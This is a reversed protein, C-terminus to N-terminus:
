QNTRMLQYHSIVRRSEADREKAERIAKYQLINVTISSGAIAMLVWGVILSYVNVKMPQGVPPESKQKKMRALENDAWDSEEIEETTM